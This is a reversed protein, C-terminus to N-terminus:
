SVPISRRRRIETDRPMPSSSTRALTRNRPYHRRAHTRWRAGGRFTDSDDSLRRALADILAGRRDVTEPLQSDQPSRDSPNSGPLSSLLGLQTLLLNRIRQIDTTSRSTADPRLPQTTTGLCAPCPPVELIVPQRYPCREAEEPTLSRAYRRASDQMQVCYSVHGTNVEHDCPYSRIFLLYCM